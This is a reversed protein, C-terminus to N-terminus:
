HTMKRMEKAAEKSKQDQSAELQSAAYELGQKCFRLAEQVMASRGLDFHKRLEDLFALDKANFYVGITQGERRPHKKAIAEQDLMNETLNATKEHNQKM